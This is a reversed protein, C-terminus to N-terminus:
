DVKGVSESEGQKEELTGDEILQGDQVIKTVDLMAVDVDPAVVGIQSVARDFGLTFASLVEDELEAVRASLRGVEVNSDNKLKTLESGVEKIKEKAAKLENRLKLIKEDKEQASAKLKKLAAANDGELISDLESTRGISM